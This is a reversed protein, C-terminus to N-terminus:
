SLSGVESVERRLHPYGAWVMGESALHEVNEGFQPVFAPRMEQQNQGVAAAGTNGHSPGLQHGIGGARCRRAGEDTGCQFEPTCFRMPSWQDILLERQFLATLQDTVQDLEDQLQRLRNRGM